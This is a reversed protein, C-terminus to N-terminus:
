RGTVKQKAQKKVPIVPKKKKRVQGDHEELFERYKEAIVPLDNDEIKELTVSQGAKDAMFIKVVEGTDKVAFDRLAESITSNSKIYFLM